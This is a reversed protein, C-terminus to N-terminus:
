KPHLNHVGINMNLSTQIDNKPVSGKKFDEATRGMSYSLAKDRPPVWSRQIETREKEDGVEKKNECFMTTIPKVTQEPYVPQYHGAPKRTQNFESMTRSRLSQDGGNEFRGKYESVYNTYKQTQPHQPLTSKFDSGYMLVNRQNQVEEGNNRNVIHYHTQNPKVESHPHISTGAVSSSNKDFPKRMEHLSSQQENHPYEARM